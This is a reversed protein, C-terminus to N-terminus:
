IQYPLPCAMRKVFRRTKEWRPLQFNVIYFAKKVACFEMKELDEQKGKWEPNRRNLFANRICVIKVDPVYWADVPSDKRIDWSTWSWRSTQPL